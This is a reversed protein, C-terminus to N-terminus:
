INRRTSQPSSPPTSQRKTPRASRPRPTSPKPRNSFAKRARRRSRPASSTPTTLVQTSACGSEQSLRREQRGQRNQYCGRGGEQGRCQDRDQNTQASRTPRVDEFSLVEHRRRGVPQLTGNRTLDQSRDTLCDFDSEFIPHTGM